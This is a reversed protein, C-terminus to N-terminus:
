SEEEYHKREGQTAKRASIIRVNEGHDAHAVILTQNASSMGITIFRQESASHDPDPFTTALALARWKQECVELRNGWLLAKRATIRNAHFHDGGISLMGRM